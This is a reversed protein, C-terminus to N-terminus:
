LKYAGRDLQWRFPSTSAQFVKHDVNNWRCLGYVELYDTSGNLSRTIEGGVHPM